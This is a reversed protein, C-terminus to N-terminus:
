ISQYLKNQRIYNLVPDPLLYRPDRTTIIMKRIATASIDLQTIAQFYLAGSLSQALSQKGELIRSKFFNDLRSLEYGPRTFVVIHAYDFLRRWQFWDTLQYFADSGIFLLLPQRPFEQRLSELTLVMYSEGERDIERTDAIFGPQDQIALKLM